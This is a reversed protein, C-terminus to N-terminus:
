QQATTPSCYVTVSTARNSYMTASCHHKNVPIPSKEGALHYMSKDVAITKKSRGGDVKRVVIGVTQFAKWTLSVVHKNIRFEETVSTLSRGVELKGIM